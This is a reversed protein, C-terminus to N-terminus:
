DFLFLCCLRLNFVKEPKRFTGHNPACSFYSQGKVSGDNKGLPEDLEVGVDRQSCYSCLLLCRASSSRPCLPPFCCMGVWYGAAFAPKGVYRVYGMQEGEDALVKCRGGLQVATLKRVFSLM